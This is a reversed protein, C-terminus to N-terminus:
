DEFLGALAKKDIKGSLTRPFAEVFVFRAPVKYSALRAICHARLDAASPSERVVVVAGIDEDRHASAFGLM